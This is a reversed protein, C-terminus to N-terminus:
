NKLLTPKLRRWRQFVEAGLISPQSTAENKKKSDRRYFLAAANSSLM